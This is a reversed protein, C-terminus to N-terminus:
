NNRIVHEIWSRYKSVRAFVSPSYEPYRSAAFSIVGAQVWQNNDNKCVLPGGSDGQLASFFHFELSFSPKKRQSTRLVPKGRVKHNVTPPGLSALKTFTPTERPGSPKPASVCVEHSSTQFWTSYCAQNMPGATVGFVCNNCNAM